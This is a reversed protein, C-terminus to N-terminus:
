RSHCSESCHKCGDATPYTEKAKAVASYCTDHYGLDKKSQVFQLYFCTESHVEHDGTEPQAANNVYYRPM